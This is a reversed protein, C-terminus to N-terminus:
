PCLGSMEKEGLNPNKKEVQEKMLLIVKKMKWNKKKKKENESKEKEKKRNKLIDRWIGVAESNLELRSAQLRTRSICYIYMNMGGKQPRTGVYPHHPVGLFPGQLPYPTM